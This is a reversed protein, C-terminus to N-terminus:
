VNRRALGECFLEALTAAVTDPDDSPPTIAYSTFVRACTEAFRRALPEPVHPAREATIRLMVNQSLELVPNAETTLYPLLEHPEAALVKDLLPHARMARLTAAFAATMAPQLDQHPEMAHRVIGIMTQEERLVLALILDHRSPFYRYLSQRSLRAERAVDAMTTRGLGHRSACAFAADLIRERTSDESPGTFETHRAIVADLGRLLMRDNM